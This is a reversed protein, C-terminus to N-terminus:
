DDGGFGLFSKASEIIGGGSGPGDGDSSISAYARSTTIGDFAKANISLATMQTKVGEEGLTSDIKRALKSPLPKKAGEDAGLLRRRYEGVCKSSVGSQAPYEAKVQMALVQHLLKRDEYEERTINSLANHQSLEASLIEEVDHEEATPPPDIDPDGVQDLLTQERGFGAQDAGASAAEEMAMQREAREKDIERQIQQAESM